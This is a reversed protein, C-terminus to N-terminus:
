EDKKNKKGRDGLTYDLFKYFLIGITFQFLTWFLRNM